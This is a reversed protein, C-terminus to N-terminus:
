AFIKQLINVIAGCALLGFFFLFFNKFVETKIENLHHNDVFSYVTSFIFCAIFLFILQAIQLSLM